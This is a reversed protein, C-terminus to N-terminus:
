QNAEGLINTKVWDIEDTSLDRDFLIFSYLAISSLNLTTDFTLKFLQLM